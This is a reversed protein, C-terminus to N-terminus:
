EFPASNIALARSDVRVQISPPPSARQSYGSCSLMCACEYPSIPHDLLSSLTHALPINLRPEVAPYQATQIRLWVAERQVAVLSPASIGIRMPQREIESITVTVGLDNGLSKYLALLKDTLRVRIGFAHALEGGHDTPIAFFLRVNRIV